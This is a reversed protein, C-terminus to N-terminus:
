PVKFILVEFEHASCMSSQLTPARSQSACFKWWLSNLNIRVLFLTIMKQLKKKNASIDQSSNFGHHHYIRLPSIESRNCIDNKKDTM